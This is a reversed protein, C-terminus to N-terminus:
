EKQSLKNIRKHIEELEKQINAALDELYKKEDEPNVQYHVPYAPAPPPYLPASGQYPYFYPARWYGRYGRGRGWFGRGRGFGGGLGANMFGPANYGACFGAARGTMSGQGLPGTGDGRPMM